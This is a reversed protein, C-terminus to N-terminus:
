QNLNEKIYKTLVQGWNGKQAESAASELESTAEACDSWDSHGASSFVLAAM